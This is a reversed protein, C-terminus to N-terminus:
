SVADTVLKFAPMLKLADPREFAYDMNMLAIQVHEEALGQARTGERREMAHVLSHHHRHAQRLWEHVEEDSTQQM